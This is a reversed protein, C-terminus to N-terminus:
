RGQDIRRKLASFLNSQHSRRDHTLNSDHVRRLVGVVDLYAVRSSVEPLRALLDFFEGTRLGADFWGLSAFVAARYLGAQLPLGAPDGRLRDPQMWAPAATDGDLRLTQRPFAVAVDPHSELHGVLAPLAAPLMVDDADLFTVYEGTAAALGTNRAASVGRNPQRIVTVDRHSAAREASDDTSGDDVVIVEIPRYPQTFASTIAEDIYEGYNFVAVVVSVLPSDAM